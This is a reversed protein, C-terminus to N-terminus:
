SKKEAKLVVLDIIKRNRDKEIQCSPKINIGNEAHM